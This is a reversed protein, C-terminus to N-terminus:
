VKKVSKINKVGLGTGLSDFIDLPSQIGYANVLCLSHFSLTELSLALSYFSSTHFAM